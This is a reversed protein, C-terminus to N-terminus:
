STQQQQELSLHDVRGTQGVSPHVWCESRVVSPMYSTYLIFYFVKQPPVVYATYFIHM